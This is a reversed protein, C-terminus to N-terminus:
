IQYSDSKKKFVVHFSKTEDSAENALCRAVSVGWQLNICCVDVQNYLGQSAKLGWVFM